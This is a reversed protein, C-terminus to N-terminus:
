LPAHQKCLASEGRETNNDADADANETERQENKAITCPLYKLIHRPHAQARALDFPQDMAQVGISVTLYRDLFKRAEHAFLTTMNKM